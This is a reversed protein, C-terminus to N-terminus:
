GVAIQNLDSKREVNQNAELGLLNDSTVPLRMKLKTAAWFCGKIMLIPVPVLLCIIGATKCQDRIYARLGIMPEEYLNYERQCITKQSIKYLAECLAKIGILPIQLDNVGPVPVIRYRAALGIIKSELGGGTVLGPRVIIADYRRAMQEIEFKTKGYLSVAHAGASYSSVYIVRHCGAAKLWAFLKEYGVKTAKAGNIGEFDHALLVAVSPEFETPLNSLPDQLSWLVESISNTDSGAIPGRAFGTVGIDRAQFYRCLSAGIFGSSGFVLARM